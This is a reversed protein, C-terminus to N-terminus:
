ALAGLIKKKTQIAIADKYGNVGDSIRVLIDLAVALAELLEFKVRLDLIELSNPSFLESLAGDACIGVSIKFSSLRFAAM